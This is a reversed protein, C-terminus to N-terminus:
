CLKRYEVVSGNNLLAEGLSQFKGMDKFIGGSGRGVRARRGGARPAGYIGARGGARPARTSERGTAAAGLPSHLSLFLPGFGLPTTNWVGFPATKIMIPLYLNSRRM